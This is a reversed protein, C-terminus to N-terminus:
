IRKHSDRVTLRGLEWLLWAVTWLCIERRLVLLGQGVEETEPPLLCGAHGGTVLPAESVSVGSLLISARYRYSLWVKVKHSNAMRKRGFTWEDSSGPSSMLLTSESLIFDQDMSCWLYVKFVNHQTFSALYM